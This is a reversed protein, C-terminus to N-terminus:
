RSVSGKIANARAHVVVQGDDCRIMRAEVRERLASLQIQTMELLRKSPSPGNLAIKWFADFNTFTREVEIVKTELNVLGAATWLEHLKDLRSAEVSPPWIAPFGLREIEEQMAAYPFGGGLIDWAYASVSGGPTVVRAMERVGKIPIPVFFIVLAMVAADFTNDPYPLAMADGQKFQAREAGIRTAAFKLQGESPDIAHVSRPACREFLMATSAGNGCGVDVWRLGGEANLWKLFDTGAALSWRGMFEEYAAGDEFKIQPENM